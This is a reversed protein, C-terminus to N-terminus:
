IINPLEIVMPSEPDNLCDAIYKVIESYARPNHSLSVFGSAATTWAVLIETGHSPKYEGITTVNDLNVLEKESTRIWM